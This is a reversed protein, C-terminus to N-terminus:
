IQRTSRHLDAHDPRRQLAEVRNAMEFESRLRHAKRRALFVGSRRAVDASSRALRRRRQVTYLRDFDAYAERASGFLVRKSDPTWGRVVDAGPHWTLRRPSGGEAPMVFADINGDYQAPSPSGNATPLFFPLANRPRRHHAPASRRRRASRELPLRRLRFRNANQQANALPRAAAIRRGRHFARPQSRLSSCCAFRLRIRMKGGILVLM